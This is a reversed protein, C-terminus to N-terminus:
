GNKLKEMIERYSGSYSTEIGSEHITLKYINNENKDISFNKFRVNFDFIMSGYKVGLFLVPNHSIWEKGFVGEEKIIWGNEVQRCTIRKM